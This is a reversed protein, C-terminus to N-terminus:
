RWEFIQVRNNGRDTVYLKSGHVAVGTPENFGSSDTKTTGTVGLTREYTLMGSSLTYIQVRHNFHDAVYFRGNAVAMGHPQNFGTNDTKITGTTGLTREYVPTGSSLNYIQIRHNRHDAVYLRGGAVAVGIPEFFGTNDPHNVASGTGITREYTPTGSLNNYIQVRHNDWDAVYLRGGAVAVGNPTTFGTDDTKATGTTSGLTTEVAPASLNTYIQIRHYYDAVYLRGGAVAVGNPNNFGTNDAKTTGTVGLTRELNPIGALNNYIQVRHNNGDAVYLKDDAATVGIPYNFGSLTGFFVLNTGSTTPTDDGDGDCDILGGGTADDHDSEIKKEELSANGPEFLGCGSFTMVLASLILILLCPFYISLSFLRKMFFEETTISGCVALKNQKLNSTQPKLNSTQPKLNSTQPKLNSTQPKLNSTQPKLNSTQEKENYDGQNIIDIKGDVFFNFKIKM